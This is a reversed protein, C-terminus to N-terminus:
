AYSGISTLIAVGLLGLWGPHKGKTGVLVLISSALMSGSVALAIPLHPMASSTPFALWILLAALCWGLATVVHWSAWLIRVHPERLVQGGNTPIFGSARMRRFILSEGLVSHVLGIAFSLIGAAVFYWNM